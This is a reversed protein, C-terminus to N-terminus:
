LPLSESLCLSQYLTVCRTRLSAQFRVGLGTTVLCLTTESPLLVAPLSTQGGVLTSHSEPSNTSAESHSGLASAEPDLTLTKPKTSAELNSSTAQGGARSPGPQSPLTAFENARM